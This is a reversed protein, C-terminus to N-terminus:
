SLQVFTSGLVCGYVDFVFCMAMASRHVPELSVSAGLTEQMVPM